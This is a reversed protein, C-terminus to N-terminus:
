NSTSKSTQQKIFFNMYTNNLPLLHEKYKYRSTESQRNRNLLRKFQIDINSCYLLFYYDTDIEGLLLSCIYDSLVLQELEIIDLYSTDLKIMNVTNKTISPIQYRKCLYEIQIKLREKQENTLMKDDNCFIELSETPHRDWIVFDAEEYDLSNLQDEYCQLIYKQFEYNTIANNFLKKLMEEGFPDYDIYERIFIVETYNSIYNYIASGLTSKGTAISGGLFIHQKRFQYPYPQKAPIKNVPSSNNSM